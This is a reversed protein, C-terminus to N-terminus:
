GFRPGEDGPCRRSNTGGKRRAQRTVTSVEDEDSATAIAELFRCFAQSFSETTAYRDDGSVERLMMM